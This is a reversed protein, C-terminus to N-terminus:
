GYNIDLENCKQKYERVATKAIQKLQFQIREKESKTLHNLCEWETLIQETAYIELETNKM